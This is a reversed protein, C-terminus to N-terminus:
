ENFKSERSLKLQIFTYIIVSLILPSIIFINAFIKNLGTYPITLEAYLLILFAYGFISVKSYFINKKNKILLKLTENKLGENKGYFLIFHNINQNIKNIEYSKLIM